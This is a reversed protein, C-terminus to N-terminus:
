GRPRTKAEGSDRPGRRARRVLAPAPTTPRRGAQPPAGLADLAVALEALVPHDYVIGSPVGAGFDSRLALLLRNATLSHGGLEFFNDAPGPRAGLLEAWHTALLEGTSGVPQRQQQQATAAALGTVAERDLKGNANVPLQDLQHFVSPILQAPLLEAMRRRLAGTDLDDGRAAVYAVIRLGTGAPDDEAVVIAASLQECRRLVLEIEDLEVRYGRIQAQRDVRGLFRLAGNQDVLCRDGTRFMRNDPEASFPDPLYRKATIAAANLYGRAVGPGGIYLEGPCGAPVPALDDDLVLCRAGPLSQGVPVEGAAVDDSCVRHATSIVTTETLGYVNWLERGGWRDAVAVSCADGGVVLTQLDPLTSPDEISALVGPPVAVVSIRNRQLFGALDRDVEGVLAPIYLTGGTNFAVLMEFLCADFSPSAVQLVREHARVGLRQRQFDAVLHLGAHSVLVAKPTGTSGSTYIVWGLDDPRVDRPLTALENPQGTIPEALDLLLVPLGTQQAAHLHDPTTILVLPQADGLIFALREAPLEPSIPLYAAGALHVALTALVAPAGRDLLLGVIGEPGVGLNVLQHALAVARAQAQRYSLTLDGARIVPHDPFRAAAALFYDELRRSASSGAPNNTAPNDSM